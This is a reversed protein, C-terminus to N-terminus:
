TLLNFLSRSAEVSAPKTLQATLTPYVKSIRSEGRTGKLSTRGEEKMVKLKILDDAIPSLTLADSWTRGEGEKNWTDAITSRTRTDPSTRCEGGTSKLSTRAGAIISRGTKALM